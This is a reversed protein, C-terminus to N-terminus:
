ARRCSTASRNWRRAHATASCSSSSTAPTASACITRGCRARCRRRSKACRTDGVNHGYTDNIQKFGDIDMVVIAVEAKLREARSLERSLHVFMSRRNPLGTLPDTLSDEQTQEFVISNHIVAGAQEAIRELLRRHDETYHNPEVH